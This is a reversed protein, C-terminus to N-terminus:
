FHYDCLYLVSNKEMKLVAEQMLIAFKKIKINYLFFFFAIKTSM